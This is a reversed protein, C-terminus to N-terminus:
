LDSDTGPQGRVSGVAPARRLRLLYAVLDRHVSRVAGELAERQVQPLFEERFSAKPVQVAAGGTLFSLMKGTRTSIAVRIECAVEVNKGRTGLDLKVVTLDIAYPDISPDRSDSAVLTVDQSQALRRAMLARVEASRDKRAGASDDSATKLMVHIRPATPM